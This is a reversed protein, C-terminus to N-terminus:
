RSCIRNVLQAPGRSFPWKTCWVLAFVLSFFITRWVKRGDASPLILVIVGNLLPSLEDTQMPMLHGGEGEKSSPELNSPEQKLNFSESYFTAYIVVFM